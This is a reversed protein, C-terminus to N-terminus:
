ISKETSGSPLKLVSNNTDVKYYRTAEGPIKWGLIKGQKKLQQLGVYVSSQKIGLATSINKCSIGDQPIIGLIQEQIPLRGPTYEEHFLEALRTAISTRCIKRPLHIELDGPKPTEILEWEFTEEM